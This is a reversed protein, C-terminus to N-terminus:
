KDNKVEIKKIEGYVELEAKERAVVAQNFTKFYGLHKQKGNIFIVAVWKSVRDFWYVGTRGSTNTKYQRTNFSQINRDAWRCNNLEYDGNVDIRDLTTGEPREGMDELFNEFSHLWTDCFKIGRGGYNEYGTEKPNCCRSKASYYSNKTTIFGPVSPLREQKIWCKCSIQSYRSRLTQLEVNKEYGCKVCKALFVPRKRGNPRIAPSLQELILFNKIIKGIIEDYIKFKKAM